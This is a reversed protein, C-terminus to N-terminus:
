GSRERTKAFRTVTEIRSGLVELATGYPIELLQQLKPPLKCHPTKMLEEFYETPKGQPVNYRGSLHGTTQSAQYLDQAKKGVARGHKM